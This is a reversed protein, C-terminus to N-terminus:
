LDTCRDLFKTTDTLNVM